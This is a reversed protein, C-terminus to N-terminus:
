KPPEGSYRERADLPRTPQSYVSWATVREGAGIVVAPLANPDIETSAKINEAAGASVATFIRQTREQPRHSLRASVNYTLVTSNGGLVDSYNVVVTHYEVCTSKMKLRPFGHRNSAM